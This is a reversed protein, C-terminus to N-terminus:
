LRVTLRAKLGKSDVVDFRVSTNEKAVAPRRNWYLAVRLGDPSYRPCFAWGVTEDKILPTETETVPDLLHFNRHGPRHYLIRTGPAWTLMLTSASVRTRSFKKPVGATTSVKWIRYQGGENSCFAIEKGDPSWAPVVNTSESFTLQRSTGGDLPMVFINFRQGDGRAFAVHTGDPSLTSSGDFPTYIASATLIRGPQGLGLAPLGM